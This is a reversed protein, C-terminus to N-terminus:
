KFFFLISLLTSIFTNRTNIFIRIEQLVFFYMKIHMEFVLFQFSFFNWTFDCYGLQLNNDKIRSSTKYNKGYELNRIFCIVIETDKQFYYNVEKHLSIKICISRVYALSDIFLWSFLKRIVFNLFAQLNSTWANSQRSSMDHIIEM